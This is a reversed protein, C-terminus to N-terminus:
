VVDPQASALRAALCQQVFSLVTTHYDAASHGLSINHGAEPQQHLIFRPAHSFLVAIEDLASSDTQWVKEHEAISFHVPVRVAPALELFTRRTWDAMMQEEYAPTPQSIIAANLVEPPYFRQPHWLLDYLGVWRREGTATTLVERAERQYHWGTGALEIGLLEAGRAETAMRMALECGASHGMVFLGAGRPRQGLIRDLAGYAQAVRQQPQTMADPDGASSGYGPRDLAM